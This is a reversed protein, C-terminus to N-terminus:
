RSRHRADRDVVVPGENSVMAEVVSRGVAAQLPELPMKRTHADQERSLVDPETCRNLLTDLGGAGLVDGEEVVVRGDFRLPKRHEDAHEVLAVADSRGARDELEHRVVVDDVCVTACHRPDSM